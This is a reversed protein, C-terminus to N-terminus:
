TEVSCSGRRWALTLVARQVACAVLLFIRGAVAVSAPFPPALAAPHRAVSVGSSRSNTLDHYAVGLFATRPITANIREWRPAGLSVWALCRSHGGGGRARRGVAGMVACSMAAHVAFSRWM